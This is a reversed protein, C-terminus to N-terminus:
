CVYYYNNPDYGNLTAVTVDLCSKGINYITKKYGSSNLFTRVKQLDIEEGTFVVDKDTTWSQHGIDANKQTWIVIAYKRSAYEEQRKAKEDARQKDTRMSEAKLASLEIRIGGTWEGQAEKKALETELLKIDALYRLYSAEPAKKVLSISTQPNSWAAM